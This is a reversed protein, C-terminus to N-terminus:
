PLRRELVMLRYSLETFGLSRYLSLAVDNGVHTNVMVNTSRHRRAWRLSDIALARGIGRGQQAPDVALRQLYSTAGARGSVAYGIPWASGAIRLRHSPTAGLADVVGGVDLGWMRGFARRDLASLRELEGQRQRRLSVRPASPLGRLDRLDHSLLALEQRVVFGSELYWVRATPGLAGTRVTHVGRESLQEMWGQLAALSPPAHHDVTVLHVVGPEDPWPRVRALSGDAVLVRAHAPTADGHGSLASRVLV